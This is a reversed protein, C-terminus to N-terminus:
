PKSRLFGDSSSRYIGLWAAIAEDSEPLRILRMTTGGSGLQWQGILSNPPCCAIAGLLSSRTAPAIGAFRRYAEVEPPYPDCIVLAHTWGDARIERLAQAPDHSLLWGFLKRIGAGNRVNPTALVSAQWERMIQPGLAAHTLVKRSSIERAELDNEWHDRAAHLAVDVERAPIPRTAPPTWYSAAIRGAFGVTIAMALTTCWMGTRSFGARGPPFNGRIWASLWSAVVPTAFTMAYSCWRMKVLGLIAYTIACATALRAVDGKRGTARLAAISAFALLPVVAGYWQLFNRAGPTTGGFMPMGDTSAKDLFGLMLPLDTPPTPLGPVLRPPLAWALAAAIAVASLACLRHARRSSAMPGSLAAMSAIVVGGPILLRLSLGDTAWLMPWHIGGREVLWGGILSLWLALAWRYLIRGRLAPSSSGPSAVRLALWGGILGILACSEVSAWAATACFAASLLIAWGGATKLGSHHEVSLEARILAGFALAHLLLLLGHHDPRAPLFPHLVAQSGLLLFVLCGAALAGGLRMVSLMLVMSFVAFLVPGLWISWTRLGADFSGMAPTLIGAGAFLLLDLPLGWHSTEGVPPNSRPFHDFPYQGVGFIEAVRELRMHCDADVYSVAGGPHRHSLLAISIGLWLTAAVGSMAAAVLWRKRKM